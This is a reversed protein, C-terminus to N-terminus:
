IYIYISISSANSKKQKPQNTTCHWPWEGGFVNFAMAKILVFSRAEVDPGYALLVFMNLDLIETLLWLTINAWNQTTAENKKQM